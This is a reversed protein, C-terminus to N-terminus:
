EIKWTHTRICKPKEIDVNLHMTVSVFMCRKFSCTDNRGKFMLYRMCYVVQFMIM